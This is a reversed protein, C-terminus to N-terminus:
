INYVHSLRLCLDLLFASSWLM